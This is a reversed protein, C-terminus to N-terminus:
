YSTCLVYDFMYYLNIILSKDDIVVMLFNNM